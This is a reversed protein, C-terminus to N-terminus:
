GQDYELSGLIQMSGAKAVRAQAARDAAARARNDKWKSFIPMLTNLVINLLQTVVVPTVFMASLDVHHRDFTFWGTCPICPGTMDGPCSACEFHIADIAKLYPGFCCHSPDEFFFTNFANTLTDGITPVVYLFALSFFWTYYNLFDMLFLKQILAREFAEETAHNEWSSFLRGMNCVVLNWQIVDVFFGFVIGLGLISFWQTSFISSDQKYKDKLLEYMSIWLAVLMLMIATQLLMFLIVAATIMYQRWQLQKSSVHLAGKIPYEIQKVFLKKNWAFQMRANRRDWCKLFIFSWIVCVSMGWFPLMRMYTVTTISQRLIQMILGIVSIPLLAKNYFQMFAFYYAVKEGFNHRISDLFAGNHRELTGPYTLIYTQLLFSTIKADHIPFMDHIWRDRKSLQARQEVIYQVIQIREAPTINGEGIFDEAMDCISGHDLWLKRRFKKAYARAVEDSVRILLMFYESTLEGSSHGADIIDIVLGQACLKEVIRRHEDEGDELLPSNVMCLRRFGLREATSAPWFRCSNDAVARVSRYAIVAFDYAAKSSSNQLDSPTLYRFKGAAGVHRPSKASYQFLPDETPISRKKPSSGRKPSFGRKPSSGSKPSSGRRRLNQINPLEDLHVDDEMM